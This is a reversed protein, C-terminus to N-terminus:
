LQASIPVLTLGQRLDGPPGFLLRQRTNPLYGGFGGGGGGGAGGNDNSVADAVHNTLVVTYRCSNSKFALDSRLEVSKLKLRKTGPANLTPKIPDVQV